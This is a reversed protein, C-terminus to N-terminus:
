RSAAGPAGPGWGAESHCRRIAVRDSVLLPFVARGAASSPGPGMPRQVEPVEQPARNRGYRYADTVLSPWRRSFNGASTLNRRLVAKAEALEGGM